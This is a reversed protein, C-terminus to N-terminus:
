IYRDCRSAGVLRAPTFRTAGVFRVFGEHMQRGDGRGVMVADGLAHAGVADDRASRAAPAKPADSKATDGAIPGAAIDTDDGDAQSRDGAVRASM